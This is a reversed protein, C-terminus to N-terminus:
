DFLGWLNKSSFDWHFSYQFRVDSGKNGANDTRCGPSAAAMAGSCEFSGRITAAIRSYMNADAAKESANPGNSKRAARWENWETLV